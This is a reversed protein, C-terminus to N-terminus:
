KLIAWNLAWLMINNFRYLLTFVNQSLIRSYTAKNFANLKELFYISHANSFNVVPNLKYKICKIVIVSTM